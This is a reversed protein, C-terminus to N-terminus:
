PNVAFMSARRGDNFTDLFIQIFDDGDIKDRDALTAHVTGPSAHAKIGFYIATESYWVLVETADEAPRGDVPAYQSFDVLRAAGAWVDEDLMGDINITAAARPIPVKLQNSRGSYTGGAAALAAAIVLAIM